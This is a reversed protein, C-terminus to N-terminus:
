RARALRRRLETGTQDDDPAAARRAGPRRGPRVAAAWPGALRGRRRRSPGGPSSCRTGSPPAPRWAGGPRAPPGPRSWTGRGGARPPPPPGSDRLRPGPRRRRDLGACEVPGSTLAPSPRSQSSTATCGSPLLAMSAARPPAAHTGLGAFPEPTSRGVRRYARQRHGWGVVGSSRIAGETREASKPLRARRDVPAGTASQSWTSTMSPCKTGLRVM